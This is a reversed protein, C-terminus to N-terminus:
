DAAGQLKFRSLLDYSATALPVSRGDMELAFGEEIAWDALDDELRGGALVARTRAPDLFTVHPRDPARTDILGFVTDDIQVVALAPPPATEQRWSEGWTRAEEEIATILGPAARSGSRYEGTFHYALNAVDSGRPFIEFYAPWPRV